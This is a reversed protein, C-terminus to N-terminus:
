VYDRGVAEEEEEETAETRRDGEQKEITFGEMEMKEHEAAAETFRGVVKLFEALDM